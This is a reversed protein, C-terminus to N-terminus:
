KNVQFKTCGDTFFANIQRAAAIGANINAEATQAGMKKPTAFYRTGFKKFEEDMDPMIDAIYRLDERENMLKLLGEEDIVEKRAANVLIGGKPMLNVMDYNISKITEPTAPIHLSLVDSIEFLEKQDKCAHVGEKEIAEAPVFADYASVEMGFGKAIRAVNRGVNGFALLGLRRGMLEHGSKGNFHNRAVYVLMGMVLEAVANANQGPTNEVVVNKEKAYQCDISDFGAGARVVIKLNKAADLVEATIKDSRVIMADVDKVADLLQENTEYKELLVVEHGTGEFEKKIGQVAEAAFPKATAILVKM